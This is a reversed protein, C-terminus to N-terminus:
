TAKMFKMPNDPFIKGDMSMSVIIDPVLASGRDSTEMEAVNPNEQLAKELFIDQEPVIQLIKMSHM